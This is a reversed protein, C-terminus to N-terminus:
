AAPEGKMRETMLPHLPGNTALADSTYPDYPTGDVNSVTGGAERVLVTGGAVDWVHNDFAFFADFRGAALYALNLATSGTRRLSQCRQSFYQWWKLPLAQASVSAPFGTAVLAEELRAVRSTQLRTTQGNRTLWTGHGRAAHFMEGRTPEYVAGVVLEGAVQLGVSVCYLPFDHVYNTTGDLPDVIWTPPAAPAPRADGRGEEEGLFGHGPFRGLLYDRITQQSALDAETVLDARAKERVSFRQRWQELVAAGREAAIRAADLYDPLPDTTPM